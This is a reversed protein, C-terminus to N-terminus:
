TSAKGAQPVHEVGQQLRKLVRPTVRRRRATEMTLRRLPHFSHCRPFGVFSGKFPLYPRFAASYIYVCVRERKAAARFPFHWPFSPARGTGLDLGGRTRLTEVISPTKLLPAIRRYLLAANEKVREERGRFKQLLPSLSVFPLTIFDGRPETLDLADKLGRALETMPLPPIAPENPSHAACQLRLPLRAPATLVLNRGIKTGITQGISDPNKKM